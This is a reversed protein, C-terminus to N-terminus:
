NSQIRLLLGSGAPIKVEGKEARIRIERPESRGAHVLTLGPLDYLGCADSAFVWLAQPRGNGELDGRCPARASLRVLVGDVVSKGVVSSGHTVAGGGHYVTEGGIQETTWFFDSTGRDPGSAPIQAAEVDMMTAMARLNTTIPIHQKKRALTDFRFAVEAGQEVTTIAVIRGRVKAGARIRSGAPLPGNQMLRASIAQGAHMKKSNITSDLRVPLITNRPISKQAFLSRSLLVVVTLLIGRV